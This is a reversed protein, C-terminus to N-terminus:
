EVGVIIKSEKTKRIKVDYITLGGGIPELDILGSGKVLTKYESEPVLVVFKESEIPPFPLELKFLQLKEIIEAVIDEYTM